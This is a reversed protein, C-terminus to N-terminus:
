SPDWHPTVRGLMETSEVPFGAPILDGMSGKRYFSLLTVRAKKPLGSWDGSSGRTVKWKGGRWMRTGRGPTRLHWHM